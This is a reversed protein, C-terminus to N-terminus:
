PLAVVAATAESLGDSEAKLRIEGGAGEKVRLVVLSKGFFLKGQSARMPALSLPNGNDLGAIEAPGEVTFRVLNDALPQVDGEDDLAEVTVYCLDDGTTNLERRDATLRLATPAGTTRVTAEGIPWGGKYAVARLEGPEYVVDM